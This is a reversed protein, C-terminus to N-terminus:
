RYATLTGNKGLVYLTQNAVIPAQTTEVGSDWQRIIEGNEPSAEVVLGNSSTVILRGGALVPGAYIEVEERDQSGPLKQVWRITGTERGLAILQNDSSVVFIHNGAIWPTQAGSIERQWIRAGTREDIAVLRGSFSIAIVLGKDIIPLARIDAITGLGGLRQTSALNDSWAVSGNAARIAYVEGSSFVPVVVDRNAAPSAAGVLGAIESLGSYEWLNAGNKASLAILKNNLTTVFIRGDVITPAARAPASIAKRWLIEGNDPKIALVENFGNTVYLLGASFAIGGGIVLDDEYPNNVKTTWIRSGNETNFASLEAKTNLAFVRGDIVIPTATLPIRDTTGRGISTKWLRGLESENLALNQMSHNPYGGNQPWFENRWPPPTILGQAELLADDPELNKQLELVSIREGELPPDEDERFADSFGSCASLSLTAIALALTALRM